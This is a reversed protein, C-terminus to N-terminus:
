NGGCGGWGFPCHLSNKQALQTALPEYQGTIMADHVLQIVEGMSLPYNVTPNTANLLAAVGERALRNKGGVGYCLSLWLSRNPCFANVGFVTDFDDCPRFGTALWPFFHTKWYTASCGDSGPVVTVYLRCTSHAGYPDEVRLRIGCTFSCSESTDLILQTVATSPSTILTGPCASWAYTLADGDPDFSASGNVTVITTVGQCEVTIDSGAMCEPAHNEPAAPGLPNQLPLSESTAPANPSSLSMGLCLALASVQLM